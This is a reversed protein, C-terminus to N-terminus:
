SRRRQKGKAVQVQETEVLMETARIGGEADGGAFTKSPKVGHRRLWKKWVALDGGELVSTYGNWDECYFPNEQKRPKIRYSSEWAAKRVKEAVVTKSFTLEIIPCPAGILLGDGSFVNEGEQVGDVGLGDYLFRFGKLGLEFLHGGEWAGDLFFTCMTRPNERERKSIHEAAPMEGEGKTMAFRIVVTHNKSRMNRSPNPAESHEVQPKLITLCSAVRVSTHALYGM